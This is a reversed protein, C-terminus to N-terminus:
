HIKRFATIWAIATLVMPFLMACVFAHTYAIKSSATNIFAHNGYLSSLIMGFVALGIASALSRSTQSLGVVMGKHAPDVNSLMASVTTSFAASVGLSWLFLFPMTYWYNQALFSFTLGVMAITAVSLGYLIPPRYGKKAAWNGSLTAMFIVPITQPLYALGTMFPSFHLVHQMWLAFYVTCILSTKMCYTIINTALITPDKLISFHLLPNSQKKEFFYFVVFLIIGIFLSAIIIPNDWGFQASETFAFVTTGIAAILILIGKYDISRHTSRGPVKDICRFSLILAFIAIPVNILFFGRWSLWQTLIGAITPSAAGAVASISICLGVIKPWQEKPYQNHILIIYNTLMLSATIGQLVRGTFLWAENLAAGCIISAILFGVLGTNFVRRAGFLDGLKGAILVSIAIAILISNMVWQLTSNSMSFTAQIHTLTVSVGNQDLYALMMFSVITTIFLTHKLKATM